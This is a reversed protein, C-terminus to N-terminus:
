NPCNCTDASGTVTLARPNEAELARKASLPQTLKAQPGEQLLEAVAEQAVTAALLNKGFSM